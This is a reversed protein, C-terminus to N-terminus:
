EDDARAVRDRIAQLTGDDRRISVVTYGADTIAKDEEGFAPALHVIGTGEDTTVYDAALMVHANEAGLFYSFPPTYRRGLLDTGKLRQSVRERADEGLESAYAALRAEALLYKEGEHEVVLTLPDGTEVPALWGEFKTIKEAMGKEDLVDHLLHRVVRPDGYYRLMAPLDSPVAARLVLRETRLPLTPADTM